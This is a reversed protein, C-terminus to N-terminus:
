ETVAVRYARHMSLGQVSARQGFVRENSYTYSFGSVALPRMMLPFSIWGGPHVGGRRSHDLLRELAHELIEKIQSGTATFLYAPSWNNVLSLYQRTIKSSELPYIHDNPDVLALDAKAAERLADARFQAWDGQDLRGLVPDEKPLRWDHDFVFAALYRARGGTVLADPETVRPLWGLFPLPISGIGALAQATVGACIVVYKQANMPNPYIMRLGVNDGSFRRSGAIVADDEIRIPLKDKVKKIWINSQSTGILILHYQSIDQSTLESDKKVPVNFYRVGRNGLTRIAAAEQRAVEVEQENGHSGFVVLFPEYFIDSLPGSIGRTKRLETTPPHMPLSLNARPSGSFIELGNHVISVSRNMDVLPIKLFLTFEQVNSSQVLIRNGQVQARLSAPEFYHEFSDIQVWYARNHRLDTAELSVTPPLSVRRYPSLISEIEDWSGSMRYGVRHDADPGWVFPRQLFGNHYPIGLRRAANETVLRYGPNVTKDGFGSYNWSPINRLNAVLRTDVSGAIALIAAFRQPYRAAISWAGAGGMSWGALYIRDPDVRYDRQVEDLMQLVDFQAVYQYGASGRALPSCLTFHPQGPQRQLAPAYQSNVARKSRTHLIGWHNNGPCLMLVLLPLATRGDYEHPLYVAYPQLSRDIRSCFARQFLGRLGLFPDSGHALADIWQETQQLVRLVYDLDHPRMHSSMKLDLQNVATGLTDNRGEEFRPGLIFKRRADDARMECSAAAALRAPDNYRRAEDGLKAAKKQAQEIRNQLGLEDVTAFVSESRLGDLHVTLRHLGNDMGGTPVERRTTNSLNSAPKGDVEVQFPPGVSRFGVGQIEITLPEPQRLVKNPFSFSALKQGSILIHEGLDRFSAPAHELLLALKQGTPADSLESATKVLRLDWGLKLVAGPEALHRRTRYELQIYQEGFHLSQQALFPSPKAELFLSEGRQIDSVLWWSPSSNISGQDPQSVDFGRKAIGEGEPYVAYDERGSSGGVALRFVHSVSYRIPRSSVNRYSTELTLRTSGSTLTYRKEVRLNGLDAWLNLQLLGGTQKANYQFHHSSINTPPWPGEKDWIGATDWPTTESLHNKGTAKDVYRLVRGGLDPFVSVQIRDNELEVLRKGGPQTRESWKLNQAWSLHVLACAVLFVIIVHRRVELDSRTSGQSAVLSSMTAKRLSEDTRRIRNSSSAKRRDLFHNAHPDLASDIM